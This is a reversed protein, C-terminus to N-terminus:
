PHKSPSSSPESGNTGEGENSQKSTDPLPIFAVMEGDLSIGTVKGSADYSFLLEQGVLTRRGLTYLEAPFALVEMMGLSMAWAIGM